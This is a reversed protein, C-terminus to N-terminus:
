YLEYIRLLGCFKAFDGGYIQGINYRDFRRHLNQLNKDNTAKESYMCPTGDIQGWSQLGAVKIEIQSKESQGILFFIYICHFGLHDLKFPAVKINVFNWFHYFFCNGLVLFINTRIHSCLAPDTSRSWLTFFITELAPTHKLSKRGLIVYAGNTQVNTCKLETSDILTQLLM